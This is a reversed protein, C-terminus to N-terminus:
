ASGHRVCCEGNGMSFDGLSKNQGNNEMSMLNIKMENRDIRETNELVMRRLQPMDLDM